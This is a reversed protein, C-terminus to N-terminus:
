RRRGSTGSASKLMMWCILQVRDQATCQPVGHEDAVAVRAQDLLTAVLELDHRELPHGPGAATTGDAAAKETWTSPDIRAHRLCRDTDLSIHGARQSGAYV